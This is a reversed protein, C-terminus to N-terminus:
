ADAAAVSVALDLVRPWPATGGWEEDLSRRANLYPRLKPILADPGVSVGITPRTVLWALVAIAVREPSGDHQSPDFGALDSVFQAYLHGEPALVLWDHADDGAASGRLAMAMGLELPMNFRALNEVGEGKFRSLDHISYRCHSFAELIRSMRPVAVDGTSGALWPVFGAHVCTFVIAERQEAYDADFPCNVFVNREAQLAWSPATM